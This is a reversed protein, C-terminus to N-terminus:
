SINLYIGALVKHSGITNASSVFNFQEVYFYIICMKIFVFYTFPCNENNILFFM